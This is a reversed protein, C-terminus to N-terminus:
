PYLRVVKWIDAEKEYVLRDHLRFPKKTWFEIREPVVRIGGWFPPRPITRGAFRAGYAAVRALLTARNELPRSQMSAWAGIQSKRPRTSFYEDSEQDRVKETSGEILVQMALSDWYFCLAAWPNEALHGGKRSELNTFFVFGRRDFGKLLVTRTSPRGQANVTALTMAAPENVPTEKVQEYFHQFRDLAQQYLDM